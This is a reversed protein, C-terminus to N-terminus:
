CNHPQIRGPHTTRRGARLPCPGTCELAGPVWPFSNSDQTFGHLPGPETSSDVCSARRASPRSGQLVQFIDRHLLVKREVRLSPKTGEPQVFRLTLAPATAHELKLCKRSCLVDGAEGLVTNMVNCKCARFWPQALTLEM